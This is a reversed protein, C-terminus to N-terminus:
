SVESEIVVPTRLARGRILEAMDVLWAGFALQDARSLNDEMLGMGFEGCAKNLRSLELLLARDEDTMIRSMEGTSSPVWPRPSTMWVLYPTVCQRDLEVEARASPKVAIYVSLCLRMRHEYM